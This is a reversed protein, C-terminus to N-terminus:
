KADSEAYKLMLYNGNEMKLFLTNEKDKVEEPLVVKYRKIIIEKDNYCSVMRPFVDTKGYDVSRLLRYIDEARDEILFRGEGPIEKSKYVRRGEILPQATATVSEELVAEFCENFAESAMKMQEIVLEFAKTSETIECEKQIIINGTDVGANVYHWTIGTKKAGEFIAWTPANRGPFDPLLASHFNIITVNESEILDAPFLYNNSASIILLKGSSAMKLFHEKLATKDEITTSTIDNAAAYKMAVNFPYVEHEIYELSYNYKTSFTHATALVDGTVVGYGIVVVHEFKSM